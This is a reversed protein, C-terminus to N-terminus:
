ETVKGDEKRERELKRGCEQRESLFCIPRLYLDGSKGSVHQLIVAVDRLLDHCRAHAIVQEIAFRAAALWRIVVVHSHRDSNQPAAVSEHVEERERELVKKSGM